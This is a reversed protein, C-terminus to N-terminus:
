HLLYLYPPANGTNGSNQFQQMAAEQDMAYEFIKKFNPTQRRSILERRVQQNHLRSICLQAFIEEASAVRLDADIIQARFAQIYDSEPGPKQDFAIIKARYIHLPNTSEFHHTLTQMHSPIIEQEMSLNENKNFTITNTNKKSSMSRIGNALKDDINM